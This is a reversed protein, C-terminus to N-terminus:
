AADVCIAYVDLEWATLTGLGSETATARWTTSDYPYSAVIKMPVIGFVRVGGVRIMAGGGTLVKGSPCQVDAVAYGDFPDVNETESAIVYGGLGTGTPGTNGQPGQPGVPGTAGRRGAPGTENWGIQTQNSNCPRDPESSIAVKRIKGRGTLCGTYIDSHSKAVALGAGFVMMTAVMVVIFTSARAKPFRRMFRSWVAHM